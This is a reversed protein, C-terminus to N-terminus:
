NLIRQEFFRIFKEHQWFFNWRRKDKKEVKGGRKMLAIELARAVVKVLNLVASTNKYNHSLAYNIRQGFMIRNENTINKPIQVGPVNTTVSVYFHVATTFYSKNIEM